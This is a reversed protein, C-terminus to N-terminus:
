ASSRNVTIPRAWSLATTHPSTIGSTADSACRRATDSAQPDSQSAHGPERGPERGLSRQLNPTRHEIGVYGAGIILCRGPLHDGLGATATRLGPM